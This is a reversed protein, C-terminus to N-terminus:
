RTARKFPLGLTPRLPKRGSRSRLRSEVKLRQGSGDIWLDRPQSPAERVAVLGAKGSPMALPLFWTWLPSRRTHPLRHSQRQLLRRPGQPRHSRSPRLTRQPPLLPPLLPPLRPPLKLEVAM